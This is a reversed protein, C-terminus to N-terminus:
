DTPSTRTAIGEWDRRDERFGFDRFRSARGCFHPPKSAARFLLLLPGSDHIINFEISKTYLFKTTPITESPGGDVAFDLCATETGLLDSPARQNRTFFFLAPESLISLTVM